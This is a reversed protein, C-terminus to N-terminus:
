RAPYSDYGSTYFVGYNEGTLTEIATVALPEWEYYVRYQGTTPDPATACAYNVHCCSIRVSFAAAGCLCARVAWRYAYAEPM